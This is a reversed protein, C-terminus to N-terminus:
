DARDMQPCHKVNTVHTWQQVCQNSMPYIHRSHLGATLRVPSQDCHVQLEATQRVPSQNCRVQTQMHHGKHELWMTDCKSTQKDFQFFSQRKVLEATHLCASHAHPTYEISRTVQASGSTCSQFIMSVYNTFPTCTQSGSPNDTCSTVTTCSSIPKLALPSVNWFTRVHRTVLCTDTHGLDTDHKGQRCRRTTSRM